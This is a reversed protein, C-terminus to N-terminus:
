PLLRLLYLPFTAEGPPKYRRMTPLACGPHPLYSPPPLLVLLLKAEEM